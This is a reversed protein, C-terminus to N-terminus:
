TGMQVAGLTSHLARRQMASMAWGAAKRVGTFSRPSGPQRGYALCFAEFVTSKLAVNGVLVYLDAWSIRAGHKEQDAWLRRAKDLNANDPWSNLLFSASSAATPPLRRLVRYTGASHRRLRISCAATTVPLRSRSSERSCPMQGPLDADGGELSQGEARHCIRPATGDPQYHRTSHKPGRLRLNDPGRQQQSPGRSGHAVPCGGASISRRTWTERRDAKGPAATPRRRPGGPVRWRCLLALRVGMQWFNIKNRSQERYSREIVASPDSRANFVRQRSQTASLPPNSGGIGKRTHRM